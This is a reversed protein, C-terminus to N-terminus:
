VLIQGDSACPMATKKSLPFDPSRPVAYLNVVQRPSGVILPVTVYATKFRKFRGIEIRLLKLYAVLQGTGTLHRTSPKIGLPLM